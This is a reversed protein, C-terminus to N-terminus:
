VHARGIERPRAITSLGLKALPKNRWKEWKLLYDLYKWFIRQQFLVNQELASSSNRQYGPSFFSVIQDWCFKLQYVGVEDCFAAHYTAVPDNGEITPQEPNNASFSLHLTKSNWRAVNHNREKFIKVREFLVPVLNLYGQDGVMGRLKTSCRQYCVETWWELFKEAGPGVGLMGANFLGDFHAAIFDSRFLM